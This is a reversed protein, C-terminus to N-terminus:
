TTIFRFTRYARWGNYLFIVAFVGYVIPHLDFFLSLILLVMWFLWTLRLFVFLGYYLNNLVRKRKSATSELANEKLYQTLPRQWRAFVPMYNPRAESALKFSETAEKLKGLKEYCLAARVLADEDKPNQGLIVEFDDLADTVNGQEFYLRGRNRRAEEHGPQLRICTSYCTIALEPEGTHEYFKGRMLELDADEAFLHHAEELEKEAEELNGDALHQQAWERLDLYYELDFNDPFTRNQFQSYGLGSTGQIGNFLVDVTESDHIELLENRRESWKFMTDLAAWAKQPLHHHEELFSILAAQLDDALEVNWVVDSNLLDEWNAPQFRANSDAYLRETREMFEYLPHAPAPPLNEEPTFLTGASQEQLESQRINAQLNQAPEEREGAEFSARTEYEMVAQRNKAFRMASDFAERLNQYGEPDEEPHHQRLKAAYAKKIASTDATSEIELIDWISM